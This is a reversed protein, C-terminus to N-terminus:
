AETGTRSAEVGSAGAAVHVGDIESRKPALQGDLDTAVGLVHGDVFVCLEGDPHSGVTADPEVVGDARGVGRASAKRLEGTLEEAVASTAGRGNTAM